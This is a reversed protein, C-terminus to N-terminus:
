RRKASFKLESFNVVSCMSSGTQLLTFYHLSQAHVFKGHKINLYLSNGGEMARKIKPLMSIFTPSKGPKYCKLDLNKCLSIINEYNDIKIWTKPCKDIQNLNM